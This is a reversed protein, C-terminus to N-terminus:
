FQSEHAAALADLQQQVRSQVLAAFHTLVAASGEFGADRWAPFAARARSVAAHVSSADAVPFRGVVDSAESPSVSELIQSV